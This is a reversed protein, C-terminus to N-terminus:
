KIAYQDIEIKYMNNYIVRTESKMCSPKQINYPLSVLKTRLNMTRACIASLFNFEQRASRPSSLIAFLNREIEMM